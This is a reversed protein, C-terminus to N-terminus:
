NESLKLLMPTSFNKDFHGDSEVYRNQLLIEYFIISSHEKDCKPDFCKRLNIKYFLLKFSSIDEHPWFGDM